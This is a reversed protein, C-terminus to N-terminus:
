AARVVIDNNIMSIIVHAGLPAGSYTQLRWRIPAQARVIAPAALVAAGAGLGVSTMFKRRSALIRESPSEPKIIETM